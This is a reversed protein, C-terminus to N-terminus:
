DGMDDMLTKSSAFCIASEHEATKNYNTHLKAGFNTALFHELKKDVGDAPDSCPIVHTQQGRSRGTSNVKSKKTVAWIWTLGDALKPM